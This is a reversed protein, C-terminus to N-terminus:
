GAMRVARVFAEVRAPDKRRPEGAMEVGSAVDVAHPRVARIAEAVNGPNLGGALVLRRERALPEVLAFDVVKGTGGLKGEVKADVLLLEGPHLRAREADEKSGIRVAKYANPLVAEVLESPEDGHLQLWDIGTARRLEGLEDLNRNAVVLVLRAGQGIALAIERATDVSVFRPSEPVWNIGLM